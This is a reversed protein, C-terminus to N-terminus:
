YLPVAFDPGKASLRRYLRALEAISLQEARLSREPCEDLLSRGYRSALNNRITKRKLRFCCGAFDLFAAPDEAILRREPPIPTLRVVASDVKPPPRFAAAPVPFLLEPEAFLKTQVTLFGYQRSGPEAILREAVERQVLFVANVLLPGIALTKKLIPSTIYYPLNGAVAAPGWQGLDTELIDAHLIHLNSAGAFRSRLHDVLEPDTEIAVVRGARRLLHETLAGRGPGIEIVQEVRHPCAAGAIKELVSGSNLFHQGLKRGM